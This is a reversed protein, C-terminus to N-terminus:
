VVDLEGPLEAAIQSWRKPGYVAVLEMVKHDEEETWPGKSAGAKEAGGKSANTLKVYRRMCEAAKRVYANPNLKLKELKTARLRNAITIWDIERIQDSTIPNTNSNSSTSNNTSDADALQQALHPFLSAVISKLKEDKIQSLRIFGNPLPLSHSNHSNPIHVYSYSEPFGICFIDSRYCTKLMAVMSIEICIPSRVESDTWRPPRSSFTPLPKFPAKSESALAVPTATEMAAALTRKQPIIKPMSAAQNM